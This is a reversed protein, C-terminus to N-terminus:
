LEQEERDVDIKSERKRERRRGYMVHIQNNMKSGRKEMRWKRSM